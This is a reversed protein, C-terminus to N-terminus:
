EYNKIIKVFEFGEDVTPAIQTAAYGELKDLPFFLEGLMENRKEIRAYCVEAPTPFYYAGVKFPIDPVNEKLRQFFRARVKPTVSTADYIADQGNKIAEALLRYVEPWVLSEDWDPHMQRVKDSSIIPYHHEKALVNKAYTSKGSGPIGVLMHITVM